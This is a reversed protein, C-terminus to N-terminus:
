KNKITELIKKSEALYLDDDEDVEKIYPIKYLEEKAKKFDEEEILAKAYDLHYMRFNPRLEIAKKFEAFSTNMDGWGLGLPLRVLYPKECVKAHSRGLVYHSSAQVDNGGNGLKIAKECDKKVDNVLGIVKFVGKFLAIRGKAISRRLYNVSANPDAKIAKDAYDLALQYKALQADKQEDSSSPMHEAIDVYSRSIRWLVEPNNAELKDAKLLVELAKQNNFQKTSYNDGEKILGNVSQSFALASFFFFLLLLISLQKQKM